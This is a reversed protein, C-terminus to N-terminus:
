SGGRRPGRLAVARRARAPARRSSRWPDRRARCGRPRRGSGAPPPREGRTCRGPPAHARRDERGGPGPPASPASPRGAARGSVGARPRRRPPRGDRRRSCRPGADRRPTGRPRCGPRAPCPSPDGGPAPRVHAEAVHGDVDDVAVETDLVDAGRRAPREVPEEVAEIRARDQRAHRPLEALLSEELHHPPGLQRRRKVGASRRSRRRDTGHVRTSAARRVSSTAPRRTSRGSNTRRARSRRKILGFTPDLPSPTSRPRSPPAARHSARIARASRSGPRHTTWARRGPVRRRM